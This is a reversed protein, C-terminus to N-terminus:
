GGAISLIGSEHLFTHLAFPTILHRLSSLVYKTVLMETCAATSQCCYGTILVGECGHMYSSEQPFTPVGLLDIKAGPIGLSPPM